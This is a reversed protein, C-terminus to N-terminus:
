IEGVFRDDLNEDAPVRDDEDLLDLEVSLDISNEM